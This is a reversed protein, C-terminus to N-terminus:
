IYIYINQPPPSRYSKCRIINQFEDLFCPSHTTNTFIKLDKYTNTEKNQKQKKPINVITNPTEM